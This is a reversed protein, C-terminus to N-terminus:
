IFNQGWSHSSTVLSIMNERINLVHLVDNLSLTKKSTVKLVVKDKEMVQTTSSDDLYIVKEGDGTPIYYIFADQNECIHRTAKYDNVM